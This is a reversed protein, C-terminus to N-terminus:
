YIYKSVFIYAIMVVAISIFIWKYDWNVKYYMNSLMLSIFSLVVHSIITSYAAGIAGIHKIFYYNLVINVFASAGTVIPLATTKKFFFFTPSFFYYFSGFYVSLLLPPFLPVADYFEEGILFPLLSKGLILFIITVITLVLLWVRIVSKIEFEARSDKSSMLQYFIPQYVQNFSLIFVQLVSSFTFAVTYFGLIDFSILDKLMIRDISSHMISLLLHMIIPWGFLLASKVYKFSFKWNFTNIYKPLYILLSVIYGIINGIIWAQANGKILLCGLSSLALITFLIIKMLSVATYEQRMKYHSTINESLVKSLVIISLLWYVWVNNDTFFNSGFVKFIGMLLFGLLTFSTFIIVQFLNNSYIYSGFENVEYENDYYSMIQASSFGYGIFIMLVNIIVQYYGIKGYETTSLLRTFIPTLILLPAKSLVEGLFYVIHGKFVRSVFNDSM